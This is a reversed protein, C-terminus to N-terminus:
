IPGKESELLTILYKAFKEPTWVKPNNEAMAAESRLWVVLRERLDADKLLKLRLKLNQSEPM